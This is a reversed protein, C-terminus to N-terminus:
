AVTITLRESPDGERDFPTLDLGAREAAKRDLSKRGKVPFWSVTFGDGQVKRTGLDRLLTRIQEKVAERRRGATEAEADAAEHQQVLDKLAAMANPGVPVTDRPIGAVHIDACRSKFACHRCEDGGAIKGEAPLSAPDEATMIRRARDWAAEYISPDFRVAFETITDLFSADAYSILAYQPRFPTSHRILGMQVQTQGSHEAKAEKLSVRPDISKCEVVLADSGLDAVGLHALCDRAVGVLLGDSTASLYGDVLTRQEGGAFLLRVGEPLQSRLAPVWFHQEILDGRIRAGYRDQYDPDPATGAKTFAIKRQCQFVESAGVTTTRDHAWVKPTAAVFADAMAKISIRGPAPNAHPHAAPTLETSGVSDTTPTHM